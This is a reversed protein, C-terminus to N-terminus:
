AEEADNAEQAIHNNMATYIELTVRKWDVIAGKAELELQNEVLEILTM